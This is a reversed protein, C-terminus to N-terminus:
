TPASPRGSCCAPRARRRPPAPRQRHRDPPVAPRRVVHLQLELVAVLEAAAPPLPDGVRRPVARLPRQGPGQRRGDRRRTPRPSGDVVHRRPPRGDGSRRRVPRDAPQRQHLVAGLGDAARRPTGDAPAPRAQAPRHRHVHGAPRALQQPRHPGDPPRPVLLVLRARPPRGGRAPLRLDARRGARDPADDATRRGGLRPPRRAPADVHVRCRSAAPQRRDGRHRARGAAQHHPRSLQRRLDVDVHAARAPPDAGRRPAHGAQHRRRPAHRSGRAAARLAHRRARSRRRRGRRHDRRAHQPPVQLLLGMRRSVAGRCGPRDRVHGRRRTRRVSADRGGRPRGVHRHPGHLRPQGRHRHWRRRRGGRPHRVRHPHRGGRRRDHRQAGARRLGQARRAWPGRRPGRARRRVGRRRGALGDAPSAADGDDDRTHMLSRTGADGSM